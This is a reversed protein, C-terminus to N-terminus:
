TGTVPDGGAREHIPVSKEYLLHALRLQRLRPQRSTLVVGNLDLRIGRTALGGTQGGSRGVLERSSRADV